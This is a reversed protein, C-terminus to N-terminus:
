IDDDRNISELICREIRQFRNADISSEVFDRYIVALQHLWHKDRVCEILHTM